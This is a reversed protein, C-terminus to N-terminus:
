GALVRIALLINGLVTLGVGPQCSPLLPQDPPFGTAMSTLM